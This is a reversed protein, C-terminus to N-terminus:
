ASPSPPIYYVDHSAVLTDDNAYVNITIIGQNFYTTVGFLTDKPPISFYVYSNPVIYNSRENGGYLYFLFEAYAHATSSEGNQTVVISLNSPFLSADYYFAYYTAGNHGVFEIFQQHEEFSQQLSTSENCAVLMLAVLIFVITLFFIKKM